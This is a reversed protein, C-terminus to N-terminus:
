RKIECDPLAKRLKETAAVTTKTRMIYLKKLGTMEAIQELALDSIRTGTLDLDRLFPLSKLNEVTGDGVATRSLDLVELGTLPALEAGAADSIETEVLSLERLRTLGVLHRLGADTVPMKSLFLAELRTLGGLERLGEDTVIFKDDFGLRTMPFVSSAIGSRNGGPRAEALAASLDGGNRKLLDLLMDVPPLRASWVVLEGETSINLPGGGGAALTLGDPSFEACAISKMPFAKRWRLPFVDGLVLRDYDGVAIKRGDASLAVTGSRIPLVVEEILMGVAPEWIKLEGNNRGLSALRSGDAANYALAGIPGQHRGRLVRALERRETDWIRVLGDDGGVAIESGRPHVAFATPQIGAVNIAGIEDGTVCDWMRLETHVGELHLGALSKPGAFQLRRILGTAGRGAAAPAWNGARWLNLGSKGNVASGSCGTALWEGDPSFAVASVESGDGSLTQVARRTDLSWIIATSDSSASALLRDFPHFAVSQVRGRHRDLIFIPPESSLPIENWACGDSAVNTTPGFSARDVANPPASETRPNGTVDNGADLRFYLNWVTLGVALAVVLVAGFGAARRHRLARGARGGGVINMRANLIDRQNQLQQMAASVRALRLRISDLQEQQNAAQRELTEASERCALEDGEAQHVATADSAAAARRRAQAAAHRQADAARNLEELVSEAEGALQILERQRRAHAAVAADVQQSTNQLQQLVEPAHKRFLSLARSRTREWWNPPALNALGAPFLPAEDDLAALGVITTQRYQPGARRSPLPQGARFARLDALVEEATQHRDAPSKALLKEIVSVLAEPVQPATATLPAPQEYVHKFILATPSDAEFPLRGALMQYLLVGTSYLDSRGDVAQGRAQEPSIYDVTGMIVGTATHGTVSAELSKVLGFDALLARRSLRDLLINGPKIDRHVMGREHAASLGALAQEVIPLAEEVSLRGRRALLDALSQGEVFQMAYFHHGQDEGIFHIPVINPHNLKAVATAETRFRRVFEESRALEAPLVKIAVERELSREYGRYVDGMGGHGIRGVIEYHALRTFPLPAEADRRDTAPKVEAPPQSPGMSTDAPADASSVFSPTTDGSTQERPPGPEQAVVEDSVRPPATPAFEQAPAFHAAATDIAALFERADAFREQGNCGLARELVERMEVPVKGKVRPSRLYAQAPGGTLLRCLLIGLQCFDVQRPDLTIGAERFRQRASEIDTPLEGAALRSLGPLLAQVEADDLASESTAPPDILAAAGTDDIVVDAARIVRRLRGAEHLVAVQAALQRVIQVAQPVGPVPQEALLSALTRGSSIPALDASNDM